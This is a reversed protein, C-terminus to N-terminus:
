GNWAITMKKNWQRKKKMTGKPTWKWEGFTAGKRKVNGIRNRKGAREWKGSEKEKEMESEIENEQEKENKMEMEKEREIESKKGNEVDPEKENEMEPQEENVTV